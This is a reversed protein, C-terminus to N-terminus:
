GEPSRPRKRTCRRGPPHKRPDRVAGNRGNEGREAMIARGPGARGWCWGWGIGSGSGVVDCVDHYAKGHDSDGPQVMRLMASVTAVDCADTCRCADICMSVMCSMCRHVDVDHVHVHMVRARMCACVRVCVCACARVCAYVCARAYVHMSRFDDSLTPTALGVGVGGERGRSLRRRPECTAPDGERTRRILCRLAGPHPDPAPTPSETRPPKVGPRGTPM